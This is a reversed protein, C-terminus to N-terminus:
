ATALKVIDAFMLGKKYAGFFWGPPFRFEVNRGRRWSANSVAEVFQQYRWRATMERTLDVNLDGDLRSRTLATFM